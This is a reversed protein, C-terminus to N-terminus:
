TRRPRWSWWSSAPRWLALPATVTHIWGRWKPKIMLLEAIRVAADDVPGNGRATPQEPRPEPSNREMRGYYGVSRYTVPSYCPEAASSDHWGHM